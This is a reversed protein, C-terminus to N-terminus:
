KHREPDYHIDFGQHEDGFSDSPEEFGHKQYWQLLRESSQIHEDNTSYSKAIGSIKVNHKKALDTLFKLAETGSGQNKDGFTTIDGLHIEGGFPSVDMSVNGYVRDRSFPHDTTLERFEDM